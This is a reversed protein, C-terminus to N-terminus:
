TFQAAEIARDRHRPVNTEDVEAFADDPDIAAFIYRTGAPLSAPAVGSCSVSKEIIGQANPVDGGTTSVAMTADCIVPDDSSYASDASMFFRVAIRRTGGIPGVLASKRTTAAMLAVVPGSYEQAIASVSIVSGTTASAPAMLGHVSYDLNTNQAEAAVSTTACALLFLLRTNVRM